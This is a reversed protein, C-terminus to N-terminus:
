PHSYEAIPEPYYEGEPEANFVQVIDNEDIEGTNYAEKIRAEVDQDDVRELFHGFIFAFCFFLLSGQGVQWPVPTQSM